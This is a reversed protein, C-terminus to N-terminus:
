HPRGLGRRQRLQVRVNEPLAVRTTDDREATTGEAGDKCGENDAHEEDCPIALFGLTEGNSQDFAIGVIEGRSNIGEGVLLSLSSGPPTLSNLDAMVGNQWLFARCNFNVHCSQGVVQGKYNIGLGVSFFDGPLTGLDRIVGSEWLFAHATTDGALDSLGVIQSLNNIALASNNTVGGFNGLDIALGNQWLVAHGLNALSPFGCLGSGGVAQDKDNIGFAVGITDGPLASLEHIEGHRPGWVVAEFDLVQPSVCNPDQTNNEATGVVQGRNNTWFGYANNGGLTPLPTMKGNQWTFGDVLNQYGQCSGGSPTCGFILGWFEGLPDVASTQAGGTILGWGNVSTAGSNLGGLTGLDTIVNNRWLSAHETADGSSNADGAAWGKNNVPFAGSFTGGLTGLATVTFRRANKAQAALGAPFALATLATIVVIHRMIMSKM